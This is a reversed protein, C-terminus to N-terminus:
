ARTGSAFFAASVILDAPPVIRWPGISTGPPSQIVIPMSGCPAANATCEAAGAAFFAAAVFGAFAGAFFLLGTFFFAAFFLGAFFAALFFGAFFAGFFFGAFFGAFFTRRGARPLDFAARGFFAFRGFRAAEFDLFRGAFFFAAFFDAFRPPFRRRPRQVFEPVADGTSVPVAPPTRAVWGGNAQERLGRALPGAARGM